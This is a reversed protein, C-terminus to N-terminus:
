PFTATSELAYAMTQERTMARGEAWAAAFTAEDLQARAAALHREYERRQAPMYQFRYAQVTGLLRVARAAGAAQEADGASRAVAVGACGVVCIPFVWSPELPAVLLLSERFLAAARADEGQHQAVFGQNALTVAIFDQRGLARLVREGAQERALARAYDGALLALEGWAHYVMGSHWADGLEQFLALSEQYLPEARAYAGQDRHLDALYRLTEAIGARDRQHRHLILAEELWALAREYDRQYMAARGLYTLAQARLPPPLTDQRAQLLHLLRQEVLEPYPVWVFDGMQVWRLAGEVDGQELTWALAARLNNAEVMAQAQVVGWPAHQLQTRVAAAWTVYYRAHQHRLAELEGQARLHEAAYARITELMTFRPVTPPHIHSGAGLPHGLELVQQPHHRSVPANGQRILSKDVLSALGDVVDLPLNGGAACVAEAAELAWGGVFVSLWRFLTQEASDLLDYSWDLTGRLTQLRAPLDRAGGTLLTLRHDLRALLAQPPFLKVRAAALEIALPLGDLRTCIEAVAPANAHTVQFDPRVAQARQLFLHVAAVQTLAALPPLPRLDPLELPPVPYEQEGYLHLVSRSTVLVHLEPTTKLLDAVLPAAASVHEFNDLVLLVQKERLFAKLSESLPQGAVETVGLTTAITAAVLLPDRLPALEVLWVGDRFDALLATAVAVALRTKGIGGPGVLTILRCAPRELLDALHALEAERGVLPTTPAPLNHRFAAGPAPPDAPARPVAARIREALATTELTPEIGLEQQFLQCCREYQALAASRQGGQWLARMLQLHGEERWPDLEIQRRAYRQAEEYAGHQEYYSALDTCARLAQERVQERTVATWEEFAASDDLLFEALFDGRYLAVAEARWQMCSRCRTPRRHPHTACGALLMRFAAVDLVHDSAPNFQVTERTVLLFPPDARHDGIAQRLTTLAQSLNRRATAEPLEPWLLGALAGRRHAHAAEVVLYCLLARVKDYEFGTVPRADLTVQIPGLLSLALRAM